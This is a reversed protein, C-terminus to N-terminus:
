LVGREHFFMLSDGALYEYLYAPVAQMIEDARMKRAISQASLTDPEDEIIKMIACAIWELLEPDPCIERVLLPWLFKEFEKHFDYPTGRRMGQSDFIYELMEKLLADCKLLAIEREKLFDDLGALLEGPRCSEIEPDAIKHCFMEFIAQLLPDNAMAALRERGQIFERYIPGYGTNVGCVKKGALLKKGGLERDSQRLHHCYGVSRSLRQWFLCKMPDCNASGPKIHKDPEPIAYMVKGASEDSFHFCYSGQPIFKAPDDTVDKIYNREAPVAIKSKPETTRGTQM